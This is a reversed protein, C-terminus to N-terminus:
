LKLFEKWNYGNKLKELKKDIDEIDHCDIESLRKIYDFDYGLKILIEAQIKKQLLVEAELRNPDANYPNVIDLLNEERGTRKVKETYKELLEEYNDQNDLYKRTADIGSQELLIWLKSHMEFPSCGEIYQADIDDFMYKFNFDVPLKECTYYKHDGNKFLCYKINSNITLEVIEICDDIIPLIKFPIDNETCHEVISDLVNYFTTRYRQVPEGYHMGVFNPREYM